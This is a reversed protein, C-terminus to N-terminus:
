IAPAPVVANARAYSFLTGDRSLTWLLEILAQETADTGPFRRRGWLCASKARCKRRTPDLSRCACSLALKM